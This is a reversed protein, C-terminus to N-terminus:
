VRPIHRVSPRHVSPPRPFEPIQQVSPTKLPEIPKWSYGAVQTVPQPAPAQAPGQVQPLGPSTGIGLTGTSGVGAVGTVPKDLSPPIQKQLIVEQRPASECILQQRNYPPERERNKLAKKTWPDGYSRQMTELEEYSFNGLMYNSDLSETTVFRAKGEKYNKCLEQSRQLCATVAKM